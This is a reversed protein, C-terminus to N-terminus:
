RDQFEVGHHNMETANWGAGIGVLLRGASLLDLSAITKALLIPDRQPILTISTGVKIRQTAVTAGALAIFPDHLRWMMEAIDDGNRSQKEALPIHTHEPIFMSEFGREEAARAFSVPDISQDTLWTLVGVRTTM